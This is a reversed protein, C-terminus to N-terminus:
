RLRFSEVGRVTDVSAVELTGSGLTLMGLKASYSLKEGVAFPYDTPRPAPSVAQVLLQFILGSRIM